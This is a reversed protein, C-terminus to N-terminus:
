KLSLSMVGGQRRSKGGGRSNGVGVLSACWKFRQRANVVRLGVVGSFGSFPQRVDLIDRGKQKPTRAADLHEM